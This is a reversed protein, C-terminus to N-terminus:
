IVSLYQMIKGHFAKYKEISTIPSIFYKGTIQKWREFYEARDKRKYIGMMFCINLPHFGITESVNLILWEIEKKMFDWFEGQWLESYLPLLDLAQQRTITKHGEADVISNFMNKDVKSVKHLGRIWSPSKMNKILVADCLTWTYTAFRCHIDIENGNECVTLVDQYQKELNDKIESVRKKLYESKPFAKCFDSLYKETRGNKDFLIRADAFSGAIYPDCLLKDMDSLVSVPEVAIDYFMGNEFIHVEKQETSDHYVSIDIDQVDIGDNRAFSGRLLITETNPYEILLQKTIKPLGISNVTYIKTPMGWTFNSLGYERFAYKEYYGIHNTTLYLKVFGLKGAEERVHRLLESGYGNGREAAGILLPSIFPSLDDLIIPEKEILGAYGIIKNDKIQMFGQPLKDHTQTCQTLVTEFHERNNFQSKVFDICDTLRHPSEYLTEYKIM